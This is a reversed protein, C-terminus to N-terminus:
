RLMDTVPITLLFAHEGLQFWAQDAAAAAAAMQVQVVVTMEAAAAAMFDAAAAEVPLLKGYDEAVALVWRELLAEQLHVPGHLEVQVAPSNREVAVVPVLLVVDQPAMTATQLVVVFQVQDVVADAAAAALLLV